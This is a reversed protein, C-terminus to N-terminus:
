GSGGGVLEIGDPVFVLVTAGQDSRPAHVSGPPHWVYTGPGWSESGDNLTGELVWYEEGGPHRHAPYHSGPAFSLMLTAGNGPRHTKLVRFRVGPAEAFPRWEMEDARLYKSADAM